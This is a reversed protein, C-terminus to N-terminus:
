SNPSGNRSGTALERGVENALEPTIEGPKFAQRIHYALVNRDGQDRGTQDLYQRKSLLFEADAFRPICEYGTVLEGKRTKDPNAAYDARDTITQAITKGKNIHLAFM